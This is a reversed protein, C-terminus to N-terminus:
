YEEGDYNLRYLTIEEEFIKLRSVVYSILLSVFLPLQTTTVSSQM